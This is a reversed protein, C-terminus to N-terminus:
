FSPLSFEQTSLKQTDSLANSHNNLRNKNNSTASWLSNCQGVKERQFPAAVFPGIM